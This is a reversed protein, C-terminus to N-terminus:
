DSDDKEFKVANAELLKEVDALDQLRGTQRKNKILCQLDIFNVKMGDIDVEERSKFCIEFELADVGTLIDIRNPPYGLQIV